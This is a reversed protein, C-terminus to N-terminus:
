VHARGIQLTTSKGCGSPGLLSFFERHQVALSIDDVAMVGGEFIKTVSLLEADVAPEAVASPRQEASIASSWPFLIWSGASTAPHRLRPFPPM